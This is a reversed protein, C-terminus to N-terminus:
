KQCLRKVNDNNSVIDLILEFGENIGYTYKRMCRKFRLCDAFSKWKVANIESKLAISIIWSVYIFTYMLHWHFKALVHNTILVHLVIVCLNARIIHIQENAIIRIRIAEAKYIVRCKLNHEISKQFQHIISVLRFKFM